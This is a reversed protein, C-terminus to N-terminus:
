EIDQTIKKEYEKRQVSNIENTFIEDKFM